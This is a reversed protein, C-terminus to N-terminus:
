SQNKSTDDTESKADLNKDWLACEGCAVFASVGVWDKSSAFRPFIPVPDGDEAKSEM